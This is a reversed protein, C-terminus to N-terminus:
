PLYVHTEDFKFPIGVEKLFLVICVRNDVGVAYPAKPYHFGLIEHMDEYTIRGHTKECCDSLREFIERGSFKLHNQVIASYLEANKFQIKGDETCSFVYGAEELISIFQEIIDEKDTWPAVPYDTGLLERVKSEELDGSGLIGNRLKQMLVLGNRKLYEQVDYSYRERTRKCYRRIKKFM